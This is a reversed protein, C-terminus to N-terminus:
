VCGTGSTLEKEWSGGTQEYHGVEGREVFNHRVVEEEALRLHHNGARGREYGTQEQAGADVYRMVEVYGGQGGLPQWGGTALRKHSGPWSIRHSGRM